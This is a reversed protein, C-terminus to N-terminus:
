MGMVQNTKSSGVNGLIGLRICGRRGESQGTTDIKSMHGDGKHPELGRVM